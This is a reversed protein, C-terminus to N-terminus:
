GAPRPQPAPNQVDLVVRWRGDAKKKWVRTYSGREVAGGGAPTFTYTGHAYGMEGSRAADAAAPTFSLSGPAAAYARRAAARGLVPLQGERLLRVDDAAHAEYASGADRAAASALDREAKLLAAKTKETDVDLKDRDTNQRFDTPYTLSPPAGARAPHSVGMDIVWRWSGDAQKRWITFFEGWAVAKGSEGGPRFEWPGTTYGVDGARSVDAYVPDWALLGPGDKRETWVKRANILGGNAYVLADDTMNALFAARAGQEAAMRAFSREARVVAQLEAAVDVRRDVKQPSVSVSVAAAACMFLVLVMLTIKM